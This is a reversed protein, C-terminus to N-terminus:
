TSADLPKLLLVVNGDRAQVYQFNFWRPRTLQDITNSEFPTITSPTLNRTSPLTAHLSHDLQRRMDSKRFFVSWNTDPKKAPPPLLTIVSDVDKVYKFTYLALELAERRLLRLREVSPQGSAIAGGTGSGFLEYVLSGDAPLITNSNVTQVAVAAIPLNESGAYVQPRHVRVSVLQTGDEQRYGASVHQAIQSAADLGSATPKWPSWPPGDDGSGRLIVLTGGAVTGWFVLALAVYAARFRRTYDKQPALVRRPRAIPEEARDARSGPAAPEPVPPEVPGAV